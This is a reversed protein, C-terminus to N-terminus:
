ALVLHEDFAAAGAAPFDLFGVLCPLRVILPKLGFQVTVAEIAPRVVEAVFQTLGAGANPGGDFDEFLVGHCLYLAMVGHYYHPALRTTDATAGFRRAQAQNWESVDFTNDAVEGLVIQRAEAHVEQLMRSGIPISGLPQGDYQEHDEVLWRRTVQLKPRLIRPRLCSVKEANVTTYREAHYTPWFPRLGLSMAAHAFAVDEFRATAVYRNLTAIPAGEPWGEPLRGGLYELIAALRGKDKRRRALEGVVKQPDTYM